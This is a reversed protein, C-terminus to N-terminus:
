SFYLFFVEIGECFFNEGIVSYYVGYFWYYFEVEEVVLYFGVEVFFLYFEEYVVDELGVVLFFCCFEDVFCFYECYDFDFVDDFVELVVVFFKEGLFKLM